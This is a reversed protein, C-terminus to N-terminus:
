SRTGGIPKITVNIFGVSPTSIYLAQDDVDLYRVPSASSDFYVSGAAVPPIYHKKSLQTFVNNCTFLFILLLFVNRIM